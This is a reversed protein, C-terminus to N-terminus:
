LVKLEGDDTLIYCRATDICTVNTNEAKLADSFTYKVSNEKYEISLQMTHGVIQNYPLKYEPHQVFESYDAWIVSGYDSEGGRIQSCMKLLDGVEETILSNNKIYNLMNNVNKCISNISNMEQGPFFNCLQRVKEFWPRTIGAHSILFSDNKTEVYVCLKYYYADFLVNLLKEHFSDKRCNCFSPNAFYTMDHNGLLLTINSYKEAFKLIMKFNELSDETLIREHPYPDHYDGLFVTPIGKKIYSIAKHWFTRGHVDPILITPM